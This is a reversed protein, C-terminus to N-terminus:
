RKEKPLGLLVGIAVVAEIELIAEGISGVWPTDCMFFSCGPTHCVDGIGQICATCVPIDITPYDM